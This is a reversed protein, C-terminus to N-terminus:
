ARKRWWAAAIGLGALVLWIILGAPEPVTANPPDPPGDVSVSVADIYATFLPDGSNDVEFAFTLPSGLASTPFQGTYQKWGQVTSGGGFADGLSVNLLQQTGLSVVLHDTGWHIWRTVDTATLNYWFSVTATDASPPPLDQSLSANLIGLPSLVAMYSGEYPNVSNWTGLRAVNLGQNWNPIDFANAGAEFGGNAVLEIAANAIGPTLMCLVLFAVLSVRNM